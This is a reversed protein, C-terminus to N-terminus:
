LFVIKGLAEIAAEDLKAKEDDKYTRCTLSLRQALEAVERESEANREAQLQKYRRWEGIVGKPGSSFHRMKQARMSANKGTNVTPRPPADSRDADNPKRWGSDDNEDESSSCYNDRRAGNLIKDELSMSLLTISNIRVRFAVIPSGAVAQCFSRLSPTQFSWHLPAELSILWAVM